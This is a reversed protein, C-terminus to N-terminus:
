LSKEARSRFRAWFSTSAAALPGYPLRRSRLPLFSRGKQGSVFSIGHIAGASVGIVGSFPLHMGSQTVNVNAQAEDLFDDVFGAQVQGSCGIAMAAILRLLAKKRDFRSKM